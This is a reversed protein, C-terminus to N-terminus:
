RAPCEKMLTRYYLVLSVREADPSRLDLAVNGHWQHADMLLLDGHQGDVAVRYQPFCLQGGAYEGRRLFTLCSIGEDLDGKDTHVGTAYTNNVTITTFPTEPIVYESPTRDVYRMQRAYEHPTHEAALKGVAQFMPYLDSFLGTNQGTWATMRCVGDGQARVNQPMGKNEMYGLTTTHVTKGIRQRGAIWTGGGSSTMRNKRQARIVSLREFHATAPAALVGPLYLCLLRGNPQLVRTPGALLIDYDAPGLVKGKLAAIHADSTRTRLRIETFNM